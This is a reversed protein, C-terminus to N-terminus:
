KVVPAFSTLGRTDKPLANTNLQITPPTRAGQRGKDAAHSRQQPFFSIGAALLLSVAGACVRISYM